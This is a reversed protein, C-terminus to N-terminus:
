RAIVGAAIRQAEENTYRGGMIGIQDVPSTIRPSAIVKGDVVVALLRGVNTATAARIKAAGAKTFAVEVGFGEGVPVALASAIDGNALVIQPDLYITRGAAADKAAHLGPSAVSGALRVQFPVAAHLTPAGPWWAPAVLLGAVSLAAAGGLVFARRSAVRPAPASVAAAVVRSRQRDRTAADVPDSYRLPDADRLLDQITM